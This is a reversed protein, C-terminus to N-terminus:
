NEGDGARGDVGVLSFCNGRGKLGRGFFTGLVGVIFEEVVGAGDSGCKSSNDRGGM